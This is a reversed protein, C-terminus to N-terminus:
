FLGERVNDTSGGGTPAGTPGSTETPQTGSVFYEPMSDPDGEAALKGTDRNIIATVIGPPKLLPQEPVGDLAVRMYDVWIPLAARGGVEGRGLPTPQDFGVWATTVVEANFGNFWADRHDNTTGTKGALDHRGLVMAGTGTGATVVDRLISSILFANQPTIV